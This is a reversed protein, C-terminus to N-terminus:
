FALVARTSLKQYYNSGSNCGFYFIGAENESYWGGGRDFWPGQPNIFRAFDEYWNGVYVGPEVSKTFAVEKTADGLLGSSYNYAIGIESSTIIGQIDLYTNYYKSNPLGIGTTNQTINSHCSPCGYIGKFGSNDADNQGSFITGDSQVLVGMVFEWNGGVMDYIGTINGTTSALYGKVSNYSNTCKSANSVYVENVSNGACGTITTGWDWQGSFIASSGYWGNNVNNKTVETCSTSTCRGYVSYTLYAAAGWEMNTMMHSDLNRHSNYLLTHFESVTEKTLARMNPKIILNTSNTASTNNPNTTLFTSSNTFTNENYSVEFKAVWIGQTGFNTFAPHLYMNGNTTGTTTAKSGFVIEIPKGVNNTNDANVNWLKYSYRPIWVYYEKIASEPIVAGENYTDTGFLIVANAWKKNTYDYWRETTKAKYVTGNDAIRVPVLEDKLVPDAGNLILDKQTITVTRSGTVTTYGTKTVQYYVTYVGPDKYTPTSTLNYTGNTIGYKITAGSSTVTIGHNNGDYAGTYNNATVSLTGLKGTVLHTASSSNYNTTAASTVTITATGSTTGPTVTVTTGSISCTAVNTNSSSCSLTGGSTNTNVKFTGTTPYTYSGSGASLTLTNNKKAITVTLSKESVDNHNADGVVKYYVTYTGANTGTPLNESYSGSGVKYQITGTTTSGANILTQSSGTYTLSKATPATVSGAKKAITVTLSKESVDNHNADGIVKYYVTYTGANTATPISESYSGSGVKYKITGTTSSGANILNQASGTYTLSKASPATVSGEAKEITVTRSGTVTNFGARTVQYYVTYTGADKYTPSSTLNYTGNATGYKITAGSSTVTIGHELGDYVGTYNNATVSLTGANTTAVFAVQGENYNKTTASKITLTATGKTTGLTVTVTNGSISCNAISADSSTCSLTGGSKNETITFTGGDPYTYTGVNSDLTLTNNAKAIVVTKSGTVDVYGERTIKFYVTYTGVDKYTPSEDLNYTGSVNGYKITGKTSEVKIGHEKEDYIGSYGEATYQLTAKQITVTLSKEEVDYHNDDGIVKYYVTYTGSNTAKPLSESYTGDEGLKYKITGTTSSGANILTQESENYTITKATPATVTGEAKTIVVTENGTISTYGAKTIKYYVKYTGVDKYTPSSTLDYNENTTGYTITSGSSTVTIGHNNGDYVGTYGFSSYSLLGERTTAVHAVKGENYNTTAESKITLTAVGKTTGPTVTVTNDKISCDAINKDSSSCSLNGGSKNETITFTGKDPYTYNGVNSSLTLTNNAKIVEINYKISVSNYNDTESVILTITTSGTQKGKIVLKNDEISASAIDEDKVVVEIEGNSVNKIIEEEITKEYEVTGEKNSLEINGEAKEITVTRFGRVTNFGVRSIEYYVTYIGVDVYKPTEELDYVGEETGYMIIANPSAVTISHYNGDYVGTYNNATVSLIGKKTSAVYAISAEKYKANGKSTVTITSTGEKEGAIVKLINDEIKCTSVKEDSTTCSLEGGSINELIEIERTEPYTYYGITESLRIGGPLKLSDNECTGTTKTGNISSEIIMGNICLTSSEIKGKVFNVKGQSPKSGSINVKIEKESCELNGKSNVNCLEDIKVGDNLMNAVVEKEATDIYIDASRISSEIRVNNIINLVIPTAILAIIALIVIVALLEILTFGKKNNM